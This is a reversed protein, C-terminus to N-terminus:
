KMIFLKLNKCYKQILTILNEDLGKCNEVYLHEIHNNVRFIEHSIFKIGKLNMKKLSPFKYFGGLWTKEVNVHEIKHCNIISEYCNPDVKLGLVKLYKINPFYELLDKDVNGEITLHTVSPFIQTPVFINSKRKGLDLHTLNKCSALFNTCFFNEVENIRVYKLSDTHLKLFNNFFITPCLPSKLINLRKLRFDVNSLSNDNFIVRGLGGEGFFVIFGSLTLDVLSKQDKLFEIVEPISLDGRPTYDYSFKRIICKKFLNLVSADTEILELNLNTTKPLDNDNLNPSIHFQVKKFIIERVNKCSNILTLLNEQEGYWKIITLSAIDDKIRDLIHQHSEKNFTKIVLSSYRRTNIFNIDNNKFYLNIKCFIEPYSGIVENFYKSTRTLHLLDNKSLYKFIEVLIEEPLLDM